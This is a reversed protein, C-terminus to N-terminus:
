NKRYQIDHVLENAITQKAASRAMNKDSLKLFSLRIGTKAKVDVSIGLDKIGKQVTDGTPDTVGMKPWVDIELLTKAPKKKNSKAGETEWEAVEVVPDLLLASIIKDIQDSSLEGELKFLRKTQITAQDKPVGLEILEGRVANALPDLDVSKPKIEIIFTKM